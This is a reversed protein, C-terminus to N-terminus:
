RNQNIELVAANLDGEQYRTKWQGVEQGWCRILTYRELFCGTVEKLSSTARATGMIVKLGVM